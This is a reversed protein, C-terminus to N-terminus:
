LATAAIIAIEPNERTRVTIFDLEAPVRRDGDVFFEITVVNEIM